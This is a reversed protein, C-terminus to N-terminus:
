AGAELVAIRRELEEAELTKRFTEIMGTVVQGESPTIEGRAVAGMVASMAAVAELLNRIEPLEFNVPGDKADPVVKRALTNAASIRQDLTPVVEVQKTDADKIVAAKIKAGAMIDCLFGIPDAQDAIRERVALTVKNPTGATRGGKKINKAM